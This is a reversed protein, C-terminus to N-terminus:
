FSFFHHKYLCEVIVAFKTTLSRRQDDTSSQSKEIQNSAEQNNMGGCLSCKRIWVFNKQSKEFDFLSKIARKDVVVKGFLLQNSKNNERITNKKKQMSLDRIMEQKGVLRFLQSNFQENWQDYSNKGLYVDFFFHHLVYYKM